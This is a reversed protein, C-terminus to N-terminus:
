VDNGVGRNNSVLGNIFNAVGTCRTEIGFFEIANLGFIKQEIKAPCVQRAKYMNMNEQLAQGM